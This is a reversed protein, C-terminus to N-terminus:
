RQINRLHACLFKSCALQAIQLNQTKSPPKQLGSLFATHGPAKTQSRRTCVVRSHLNPCCHLTPSRSGAVNWGNM